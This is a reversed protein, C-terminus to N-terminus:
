CLPFVSFPAGAGSWEGRPGGARVAMPGDLTRTLSGAGFGVTLKVPKNPIQMAGAAPKKALLKRKDNAADLEEELM